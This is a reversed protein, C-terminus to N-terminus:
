HEPGQSPTLCALEAKSMVRSLGLVKVSALTIAPDAAKAASFCLCLALSAFHESSPHFHTGSATSLSSHTNPYLLSALCCKARNAM